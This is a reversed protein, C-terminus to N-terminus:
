HLDRFEQHRGTEEAAKEAGFAYAADRAEEETAADIYRYHRIGRWDTYIATWEASAAQPPRLVVLAVYRDSM